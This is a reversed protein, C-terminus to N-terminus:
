DAEGRGNPPRDPQPNEGHCLGCQAPGVQAQGVGAQTHCTACPPVTHAPVEHFRTEVDRAVPGVPEWNAQGHCSECDPGLTSAHPDEHCGRCGKAVYAAVPGRDNHCRLCAAQAHAAELRYGTEEERDFSLNKRLASGGQGVHCIGCGGPFTRHSVVQGWPGSWARRSTDLHCSLAAAVGVGILLGVLPLKRRRVSRM